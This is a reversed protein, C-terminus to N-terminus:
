SACLANTMYERSKEFYQHSQPDARMSAAPMCPPGHYCDVHVKLLSDSPRLRFRCRPYPLYVVLHTQAMKSRYRQDVQNLVLSVTGLDNLIM